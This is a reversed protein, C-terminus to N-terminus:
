DKKSLKIAAKVQKLLADLKYDPVSIASEMWKDDKKWSRKFQWSTFGGKSSDKNWGAAQIADISTLKHDPKSM